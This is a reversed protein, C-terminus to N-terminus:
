PTVNMERRATSDSSAAPVSASARTFPISAVRSIESARPAPRDDVRAASAKMSNARSRNPQLRDEAEPEPREGLQALDRPLEPKSPEHEDRGPAAGRRNRAQRDDPHVVANARMNRDLGHPLRLGEGDLEVPVPQDTEAPPARDVRALRHDGPKM